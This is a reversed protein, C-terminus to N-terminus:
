QQPLLHSTKMPSRFIDNNFSHFPVDLYRVGVYPNSVCLCFTGLDSLNKGQCLMILFKSNFFPTTFYLYHLLTIKVLSFSYFSSM